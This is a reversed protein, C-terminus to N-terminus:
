NNVAHIYPSEEGRGWMGVVHELHSLAEIITDVVYADGNGRINRDNERLVRTVGLAAAIQGVYAGFTAPYGFKSQIKQVKRNISVLTKAMRQADGLEVASNWDYRVEWAYLRRTTEGDPNPDNTKREDNSGQSSIQLNQYLFGAPSDYRDFYRPRPGNDYDIKIVDLKVHFYYRSQEARLLLAPAPSSPKGM